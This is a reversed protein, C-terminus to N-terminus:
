SSGRKIYAGAIAVVYVFQLAGWVTIFQLKGIAFYQFLLEDWLIAIAISCWTLVHATAIIQSLLMLWYIPEKPPEGPPVIAADVAQTQEM